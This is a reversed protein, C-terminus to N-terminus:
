NKQVYASRNRKAMIRWPTQCPRTQGRQDLKTKCRNGRVRATYGPRPLIPYTTATAIMMLRRVKVMFAAAVPDLPKEDDPLESKVDSM